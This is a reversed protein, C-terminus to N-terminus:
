NRIYRKLLSKVEEQTLTGQTEATEISKRIKEIIYIHYEIDEVICDDPFKRLLSEVLM